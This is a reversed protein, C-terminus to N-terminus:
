PYRIIVGGSNTGPQYSVSRYWVFGNTGAKLSWFDFPGGARDGAGNLAAPGTVGSFTSTLNVFTSKLEEFSADAPMKKYTNIAVQLADYVALTFVDVDYNTKRNIWISLPEWLFRFRDDLGVTPNPYGRAAAFEAAELDEALVQSQVVGDSGYWKVSSLVPDTKAIKFIERVENFGALYVATKGPHTQQAADMQKRLEAVIDAFNTESAGYKIGSSVLGGALSFFKSTSDHLGQNGADDRWVPVISQILDDKLLAAMAEGEYTDDPCFRFVNDNSIALSSATSSPSILLIGHADAFPKIVRLEASSQPGIVIRVGSQALSQLQELATEPLLKTDRIDARFNYIDGSSVLEANNKQIGIKISVEANRGLTQWEGTLSLLAGITIQRQGNLQFFQRDPGTELTQSFNTELIGEQGSSRRWAQDGTFNGRQELHFIQTFNSPFSLNIRSDLRQIELQPYTHWVARLGVLNGTSDRLPIKSVLVSSRRGGIPENSEVGTFPSGTAIVRRDDARFQDALNSPYFYYDDKGVIDAVSRVEPRTAAISAVYLENANIFVGNTDKDLVYLHHASWSNAPAPIVTGSVEIPFLIAPLVFFLVSCFLGFRSSIIYDPKLFM